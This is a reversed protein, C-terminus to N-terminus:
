HPEAANICGEEKRSTENRRGPRPLRIDIYNYSMYYGKTIIM